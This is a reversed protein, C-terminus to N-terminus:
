CGLLTRICSELESQVYPKQLFGGLNKGAFRQTVEQRNYGSSIIVKVDSRLRRLERFTEEGDLHPMTLDLLVLDIRDSHRKFVELAELGNCATLVDFGLRHLMNQGMSLITEEDDVLLVTGAGKWTESSGAQESGSVADTETCAPFLVKVSTGRGPESYVKIAGRHGRVIGLVASLGLGRGTFKTTFFPDFLKGLTDHDMGCGTDTVEMFVYQGESLCENLYTSLLYTSDCNMSGTSISIVGSTKEIADSANTVLNMIIQRIQTADAEILPLNDAFHYKIVAKKSISVEMMHTMEEVAENLSFRQILFKGRGSYALMQRSLDAARRAAKEIESINCYVPNAASIDQLALDANGLIAMLINNFDHAIGGALVGLSELKQAHQVQQELIQRESSAKKLDSIDHLSEVVQVVKGNKDFIPAAVVRYVRDEEPPNRYFHEASFPQGTKIVNEVPCPFEDSSCPRDANYLMKHCTLTAASLNSSVMSQATKNALVITYDTNIVLLADPFGDIVTQLFTYSKKLEEASENLETVDTITGMFGLTEGDKDTMPVAEGITWTVKGNRDIFRYESRFASRAESSRYWEAFVRDRDDPHIGNAWGTGKGQETSMGTIECLRRNWYVTKGEIDTVFVGVPSIQSLMKFREESRRLAEQTQKRLTIDEGSSLTGSVEGNEDKLVTNHWAILREKGSRTLVPNEFYELPEAAGTMIQESVEKVKKQQHLPLFNDFWNKGVISEEPWGLVECTKRNVLTVLGARDIAVFMVNALQLFKAAREREARLIEPPLENDSRVQFVCNTKEFEGNPLLVVTGEYAVRLFSGDRHRLHFEVGSVHGRKKFLPFNTQFHPIDGPELFEAFNRGIVEKRNYGLARLWASNVDLFDGNEALAQHPLPSDHFSNEGGKGPDPHAAELAAVKRRLEEVEKLLGDRDVANNVLAGLTLAHRHSLEAPGSLM